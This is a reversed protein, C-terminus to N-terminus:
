KAKNAEKVSAPMAQNMEEVIKRVGEQFDTMLKHYAKKNYAARAKRYAAMDSFDRPTKDFSFSCRKVSEEQLEAIDNVIKNVKADDFDPYLTRAILLEAAIDGCVYRINKKLQRKNTM